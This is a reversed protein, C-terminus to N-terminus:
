FRDEPKHSCSRVVAGILLSALFALLLWILIFRIM